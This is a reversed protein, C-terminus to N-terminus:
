FKSQLRLWETIEENTKFKPIKDFAKMLTLMILDKRDIQRIRKM